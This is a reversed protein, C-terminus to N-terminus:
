NQKGGYLLLGYPELVPEDKADLLTFLISILQHKSGISIVLKQSPVEFNHMRSKNQRSIIPNILSSSFFGSFIMVTKVSM